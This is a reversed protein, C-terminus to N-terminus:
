KNDNQSLAVHAIAELKAFTDSFGLALYMQEFKEYLAFCKDCM